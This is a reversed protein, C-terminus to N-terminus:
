LANRLRSVHGVFPVFMQLNVYVTERSPTRDALAHGAKNQAVRLVSQISNIHMDLDEGSQQLLLKPLTTLAMQFKVVKRRVTPEKDITKFVSAYAPSAIGIEILRLFEVEAAVGLMVCASLLREVYYTAVAEALYEETVPALDPAAAKVLKLYSNVDHFRYPSRKALTEKANYSLRFSPWSQNMDNRGLIVVGQRFLDWFVDRVLETDHDNMLNGSSGSLMNRETPAGRIVLLDTVEGVLDAYVNIQRHPREALLADIVTNRIEEYTHKKTITNTM